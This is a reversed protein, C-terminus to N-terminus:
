LEQWGQRPEWDERESGLGLEKIPRNNRKHNLYLMDWLNLKQIKEKATTANTGIQLM